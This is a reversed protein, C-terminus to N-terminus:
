LIEFVKLSTQKAQLNVDWDVVINMDLHVNFRAGSKRLLNLGLLIFWYETCVSKSTVSLLGEQILLLIVMSSIEHDHLKWLFM